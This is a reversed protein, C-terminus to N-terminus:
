LAQDGYRQVGRRNRGPVGAFNGFANNNLMRKRKPWPARIGQFKADTLLSKRTTSIRLMVAIVSNMMVVAAVRLMFQQDLQLV